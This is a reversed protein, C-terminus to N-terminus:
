LYSNHNAKMKSGKGYQFCGDDCFQKGAETTIQKWKVVKATSSVVTIRYRIIPVRNHNAKMKSGKGYQFCSIQLFM